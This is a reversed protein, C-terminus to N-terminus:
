WKIVELNNKDGFSMNPFKEDNYVKLRRIMKSRLKNKPIMGMVAKKLVLDAKQPFLKKLPILTDNGLYGTHHFYMKQELKKGTFVIKSANIVIVFDGCVKDNSFNKKNKGMLITAVRSAVRGLPKGSADVLM